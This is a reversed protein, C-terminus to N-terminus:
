SPRESRLGPRSSSRRLFAAIDQAMGVSATEMVLARQFLVLAGFAERSLDLARFIPVMENALQATQEVQGSELYLAALELSVVAADYGIDLDLFDQRVSTLIREAQSSEGLKAAILGELWRIRVRDIQTACGAALAHITPMLQRAQHAAGTDVLHAALHQKIGLVLRPDLEGEALREAERLVEIGAEPEGALHLMNAQSLLAQSQRLKNGSWRYIAIVQDFTTRAEEFRTQDKLLGAKLYLPEAREV